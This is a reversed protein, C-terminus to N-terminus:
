KAFDPVKQVKGGDRRNNRGCIRVYFFFREGVTKLADGTERDSHAV